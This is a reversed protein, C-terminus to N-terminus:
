EPDRIRIKGDLIRIRMLYNLFSKRLEKFFSRPHEDRIWIKGWGPDQIRIGSGIRLVTIIDM